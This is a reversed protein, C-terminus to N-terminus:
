PRDGASLQDSFTSLEIWSAPTEAPTPLTSGFSKRWRDPLGLDVRAVSRSSTLECVRLGDPGYVGGPTDFGAEPYDGLQNASALYVANDLARAGCALEYQRGWPRRWGAPALVLEAGNLAAERVAEPSGLDWCIVLAVLAGGARVVPVECGAVFVGPEDTTWVLRRKRYTLLLGRPGVLNASDSVGGSPRREPFGYAVYLGLRGALSAFFRASTGGKADEAHRHVARLGAYGCTFLEPLVVWRLTPHASKAASVAREALRLNGPVNGPEPRLHLAAVLPHENGFTGPTGGPARPALGELFGVL